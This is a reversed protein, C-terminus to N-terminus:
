KERKNRTPLTVEFGMNDRFQRNINMLKRSRGLEEKEDQEENTALIDKQAVKESSM